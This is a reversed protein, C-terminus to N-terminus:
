VVWTRQFKLDFFNLNQFFKSHSSNGNFGRPQQPFQQRVNSPMRMPHMSIPRNMQGMNGMNNYQQRM